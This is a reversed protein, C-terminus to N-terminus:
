VDIGTACTSADSPLESSMAQCCTRESFFGRFYETNCKECQAVRTGFVRRANATLWMGHVIPQENGGLRAFYEDTHIPNIDGSITSYRGMQVPVMVEDVQSLMEYGEIEKYPPYASAIRDLFEVM